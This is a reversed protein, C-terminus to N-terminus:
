TQDGNGDANDATPNSKSEEKAFGLELLKYSQVVDMKTLASIVKALAVRNGSASGGLTRYLLGIADLWREPFGDKERLQRAEEREALEMVTKTTAVVNGLVLRLFELTRPDFVVKTVHRLCCPCVAIKLGEFPFFEPTLVLCETHHGSLQCKTWKKGSLTLICDGFAKAPPHKTNAVMM